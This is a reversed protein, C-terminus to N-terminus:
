GLGLQTKFVDFLMKVFMEVLQGFWGSKLSQIVLVVVTIVLVVGIAYEATTVGRESCAEVMDDTVWEDDIADVEVLEDFEVVDMENM